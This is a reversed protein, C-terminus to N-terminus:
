IILQKETTRDIDWYLSFFLNKGPKVTEPFNKKLAPSIKNLATIIKKTQNTDAVHQKRCM